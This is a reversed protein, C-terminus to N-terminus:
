GSDKPWPAGTCWFISARQDSPQFDPIATFVGNPISAARRIAKRHSTNPLPQGNTNIHVAENKSRIKVNILLTSSRETLPLISFCNVFTM